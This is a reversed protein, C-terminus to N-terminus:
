AETAVSLGPCLSLAGRHTMEVIMAASRLWPTLVSAALSASLLSCPYSLLPRACDGRHRKLLSGTSSNHKSNSPDPTAPDPPHHPRTTTRRLGLRGAANQTWLIKVACEVVSQTAIGSEGAECFLCAQSMVRKAKLGNSCMVWLLCFPLFSM